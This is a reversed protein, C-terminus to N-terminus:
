QNVTKGRIRFSISPNKLFNLLLRPRQTRMRPEHVLVPRFSHTLESSRRRTLQLSRRSCRCPNYNHHPLPTCRASRLHCHRRVESYKKNKNQSLTLNPPLLKAPPSLIPDSLSTTPGQAVPLFEVQFCATAERRVGFYM